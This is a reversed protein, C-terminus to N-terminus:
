RGHSKAAQQAAEQAREWNRYAELRRREAKVAKLDDYEKASIQAYTFIGDEIHQELALASFIRDGYETTPSEGEDFSQELISEWLIYNYQCAPCFFFTGEELEERPILQNDDLWIDPEECNEPNGQQTSLHRAIAYPNENEAATLIKEATRAVKGPTRLV